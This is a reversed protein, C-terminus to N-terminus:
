SRVEELTRYQWYVGSGPEAHFCLRPAPPGYFFAEPYSSILTVGSASVDIKKFTAAMKPPITFISGLKQALGPPVFQEFSTFLEGVAEGETHPSGLKYPTLVVLETKRKVNENSLTASRIMEQIPERSEYTLIGEGFSSRSLGAVM